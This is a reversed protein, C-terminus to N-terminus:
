PAEVYRAGTPARDPAREVVWTSGKTCRLDGDALGQQALWAVLYGIVDGHSCLVAPDPGLRALLALTADLPEGEALAPEDEVQM